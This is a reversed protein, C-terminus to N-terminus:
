LNDTCLAFIAYEDASGLQEAAGLATVITKLRMEQSVDGKNLISISSSHNRAYNPIYWHNEANRM